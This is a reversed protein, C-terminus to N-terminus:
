RKSIGIGGPCCTGAMLARKTVGKSKLKASAKNVAPKKAATKPGAKKTKAKATTKKVIKKTKTKVATKKVTKKEAM